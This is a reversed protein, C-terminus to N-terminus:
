LSFSYFCTLIEFSCSPQTLLESPCKLQTLIESPCKHTFLLTLVDLLSCCPGAPWSKLHSKERSTWFPGMACSCECTLFFCSGYSPVKGVGTNGWLYIRWEREGGLQSTLPSSSCIVLNVHNQWVLGPTGQSVPVLLPWDCSSPNSHDSPSQRIPRELASRWQTWWNGLRKM